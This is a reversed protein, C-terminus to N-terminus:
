SIHYPIIPRTCLFLTLTAYPTQPSLRTSNPIIHVRRGLLGHLINYVLRQRASVSIGSPRSWTLHLLAIARPDRVAM